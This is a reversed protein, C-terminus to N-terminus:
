NSVVRYEVRRNRARGEPTDNTDIPLSEGYGNYVLRRGDIGHEKLWETVAKARDSSLRSNHALTGTNDTHGRLEVKMKPNSELLEKLCVLERYSQQLLEHSDVEFYVGWMPVIDGVAPVPDPQVAESATAKVTDICVVSVDDIYYYAGQLVATANGLAVVTSHNFDYFNGLTLFREGGEATFTDCIERWVKMETMVSDANNVVQPSFFTGISQSARDGMDSLERNMLIGMTSDSVAERTLLAGLTAVAHPSRDALSVHFAVRYRRGAELPARLETQLYERYDEQSCYIGCYGEGSRPMQYGLKNRPVTCERGGCLHFYDSSGRSPQWWADVAKMVGLADIRQPCTNHEEFSPNYVLNEQSLLPLALMLSLSLALGKM